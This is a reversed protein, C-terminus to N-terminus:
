RIKLGVKVKVSVLIGLFAAMHNAIQQLSQESFDNATAENKMWTPLQYMTDVATPPHPSKNHIMSLKKEAFQTAHQQSDGLFIDALEPEDPFLSQM